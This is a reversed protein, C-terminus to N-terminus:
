SAEEVADYVVVEQAQVLDTLSRFQALENETVGEVARYLDPRFRKRDGIYALVGGDRSQLIRNLVRATFQNRQWLARDMGRFPESTQYAHILEYDFKWDEYIPIREKFLHLSVTMLDVKSAFDESACYPYIGTEEGKETLIKGVSGDVFHVPIGPNRMAYLIGANCGINLKGRLMWANQELIYEENFLEHSTRMHILPTFDIPNEDLALVSPKEEELIKLVRGFLDVERATGIVVLKDMAMEDGGKVGNLHHMFTAEM